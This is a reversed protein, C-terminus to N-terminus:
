WKLEILYTNALYTKSGGFFTYDYSFVLYQMFLKIYWTLNLVIYYYILNHWNQEFHVFIYLQPVCTATLHDQLFSYLYWAITKFIGINFSFRFYLIFSPIDCWKRSLIIIRKFCLFELIFHFCCISYNFLNNFDYFVIDM